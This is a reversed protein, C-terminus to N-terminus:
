QRCQLLQKSCSDRCADVDDNCHQPPPSGPEGVCQRWDADCNESCASAAGQCAQVKAFLDTSPGPQVNVQNKAVLHNRMFIVTIHGNGGDSWDVTRADGTQDFSSSDPSGLIAAAAEYTM